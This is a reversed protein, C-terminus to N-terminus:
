RAKLAAVFAPDAIFAAILRQVGIQYNAMARPVAVAGLFVWARWWNLTGAPIFLLGGFIAVNLSVGVILRFIFM